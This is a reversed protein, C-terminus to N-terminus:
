TPPFKPLRGCHLGAKKCGAHKCQYPKEGTHSRTHQTLGSHIAFRKKCGAHKCQYPKEGTHTRKHETLNSSRTFTKGCGAHQSCQCQFSKPTCAPNHRRGGGGPCGSMGRFCSDGVRRGKTQAARVARVM